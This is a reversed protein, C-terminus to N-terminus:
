VLGPEIVGAIKVTISQMHDLAVRGRTGVLDHVFDRDFIRFDERPRPFHAHRQIPAGFFVHFQELVFTNVVQLLLSVFISSEFLRAAIMPRTRNAATALAWTGRRGSSCGSIWPIYVRVPVRPISASAGALKISGASFFASDTDLRPSPSPGYGRIKPCPAVTNRPLWCACCRRIPM